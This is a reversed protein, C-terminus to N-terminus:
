ALPLSAMRELQSATWLYQNTKVDKEMAKYNKGHKAKLIDLIAREWGKLRRETKVHDNQGAVQSIFSCTATGPIERTPKIHIGLSDYNEITTKKPDWLARVVANAPLKPKKARHGGTPKRKTALGKSPRHKVM